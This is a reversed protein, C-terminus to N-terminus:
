TECLEKLILKLPFLYRYDNKCIGICSSNSSVMTTVQRVRTVRDKAKYTHKTSLQKGRQVKEIPWQTTQEEEIYM